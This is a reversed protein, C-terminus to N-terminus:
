PEIRTFQATINDCFPQNRGLMARLNMLLEKLKHRERASLQPLWKVIQEFKTLTKPVIAAARAAAKITKHEGRKFADKITPAEDLLRLELYEASNGRILTVRDGQNDRYAKSKRDGGHSQRALTKATELPVARRTM